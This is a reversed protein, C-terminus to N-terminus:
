ARRPRLLVMWVVLGVVVVAVIVWIWWLSVWWPKPPVPVVPPAKVTFTGSLGDINVAYTGAVDKATTFTVEQSAGGALTVEKTAVVVNDIKLTVQHTGTADGTNAVLVSITVSEGIDVEAPSVTLATTTFAAPAAEPVAAKVVFTASLGNIDTAYTGPVDRSITFTVEESTGGALTIDKTAVVVNDIKLTVEYTGKADGTNAVVVSITVSEGIDAETPSITLGGSAFTAPTGLTTFTDEESIAENGSRDKSITQYHYVTCPNLNTLEVEHYIVLREDLPSFMHESAWYEVQSTSRENTKWEIIVSIKTINSASIDSLRPLTTDRPEPAPRSSVTPGSHPGTDGIANDIGDNASFQFNHSGLGLETGTTTYEYSEGNSYVGDEGAKVTMATPTGGDISVTISSPADNEFDTYNVSYTFTASTYGSTPSVAGSSLFPSNVAIFFPGLHVTSQWNGANDVSRIHFYHSNGDALVSSTAAEVGEEIDKTQDPITTPSTDWLISYGDLGSGGDTADTWTVDVTNDNSWTSVTHSTSSVSTPDTPPTTDIYFPGLHVTSQWNGANDVSRIHFYHSNGDALASSTAAQVGEEIDKTQNPITDSNTDWLISYGDLGSTADTADTWTIAVTNDTSWTSPTHSTSTVGTPDGPPVTDKYFQWSWEGSEGEVNAADDSAKFYITHSGESLVGFDPIPWNDSDWSTGTADTFLATWAGAFSDMQYWGDDLALNDDFGFNSLVPATNYYQGEAEVIAEMTPLNTTDIYFPGLHVTSQWNGANDVSRIHFYHSNGDALASSTTTQVGQEINKTPDPITDSNTDWLISYGDLGSTVDTADTWTIDVTNDSSWTSTTHSPSSVGTPDGPPVTDKYFQWSWEGSEGEVNAADDSAKFYITHSGESLAGFDPITWNDSDWSTGAADTFLVTWAGAFSDM